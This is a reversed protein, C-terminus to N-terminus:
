PPKCFKIYFISSYFCVNQQNYAIVEREVPNYQTDCGIVHDTVVHSLKNQCQAGAVRELM